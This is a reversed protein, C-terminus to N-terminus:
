AARAFDRANARKTAHPKPVLRPKPEENRGSTDTRVSQLRKRAPLAIESASAAFDECCVLFAASVSVAYLALNIKRPLVELVALGLVFILFAILFILRKRGDLLLQNRTQLDSNQKVLDAIKKKQDFLEFIKNVISKVFPVAVLKWFGCEPSM